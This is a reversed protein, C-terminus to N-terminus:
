RKIRAAWEGILGVDEALQQFTSIYAEPKARILLDISGLNPLLASRVIERLRRKIRNRDVIRRKHKPVVVGVRPYLLLSASARAELHETQMRKGTRRLAELETESTLRSRRPFSLTKPAPTNPPCSFM